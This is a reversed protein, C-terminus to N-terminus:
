KGAGTEELFREMAEALDGPAEEQVYHGVSPLRVTRVDSFSEQWRRLEKERFALDKMGWVCLLPLHRLASLRTWIRGLWESVGIIQGPFRLCGTRDEPHALPAIYHAHADASLRRRDGFVLPMVTRVFVNYRRILMRGIPGGMLTSFLVYYPDRNVPWAWSNIVVLRAINEPNAAAYSLGIPGGWDQVVLTIRRLKLRDILAELNAAHEGPHYGWELPKDSLGFGLYDPAVCRYEGRLRKIVGRYLFSWTPNGHLMVLPEGEGEDLYHMRGAELELYHSRFPYEERDIWHTEQMEAEAM